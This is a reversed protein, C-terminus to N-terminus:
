RVLAASEFTTSGAVRVTSNPVFQRSPGISPEGECEIPDIRQALSPEISTEIPSPACNLPTSAPPSL